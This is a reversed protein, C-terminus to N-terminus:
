HPQRPSCSHLLPSLRTPNFGVTDCVTAIHIMDVKGKAASCQAPASVSRTDWDGM